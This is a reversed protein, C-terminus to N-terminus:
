RPDWGNDHTIRMVDPVDPMPEATLGHEILRAANRGGVEHAEHIHAVLTEVQAGLVSIRRDKAALQAEVEERYQRRMDDALM